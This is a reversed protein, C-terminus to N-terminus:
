RKSYSTMPSCLLTGFPDPAPHPATIPGAEQTATETNRGLRAPFTDVYVKFLTSSLSSGQCVRRAITGSKGTTTGMTKIYVAQLAFTIASLVEDALKRRSVEILNKRPVLDIASKLHLAVSLKLRRCNAM